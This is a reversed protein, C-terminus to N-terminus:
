SAVAFRRGLRWNVYGTTINVLCLIIVVAMYTWAGHLGDYAAEAMCSVAVLWCFVALTRSIRAAIM